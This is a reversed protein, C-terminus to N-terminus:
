SASGRPDGRDRSGAVGSHGNGAREKRHVRIKGINERSFGAAARHSGSSGAPKATDQVYSSSKLDTASAQNSSVQSARYTQFTASSTSDSHNEFGSETGRPTVALPPFMSTGSGGRTEVPLELEASNAERAPKAEDADAAEEDVVGLVTGSAGVIPVAVAPLPWTVTEQVAGPLLPPAVM